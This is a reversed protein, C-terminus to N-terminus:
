DAGNFKKKAQSVIDNFTIGPLKPVELGHEPLIEPEIEVRPMGEYCGESSKTHPWFATNMGPGVNNEADAYVRPM